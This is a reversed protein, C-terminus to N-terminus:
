MADCQLISTGPYHEEATTALLREVKMMQQEALVQLMVNGQRQAISSCPAEPMSSKLRGFRM